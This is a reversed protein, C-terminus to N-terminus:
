RFWFKQIYFYVLFFSNHVEWFFIKRRIFWIRHRLGAVFRTADRLKLLKFLSIGACREILRSSPPSSALLRYWSTDDTRDQDREQITPDDIPSRNPWIDTALGTRFNYKIHFLVCEGAHQAHWRRRPPCRRPRMRRERGNHKEQKSSESLRLYGRITPPEWGQRVAKGGGKKGRKGAPSFGRSSFPPGRQGGVSNRARLRGKEQM